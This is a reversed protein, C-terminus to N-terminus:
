SNLYGSQYFLNPRGSRSTYLLRNSGNDGRNPGKPRRSGAVRSCPCQLRSQPATSIQPPIPLPILPNNLAMTLPTDRGLSTEFVRVKKKPGRSRHLESSCRLLEPFIFQAFKAM